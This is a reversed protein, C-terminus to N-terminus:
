EKLWGHRVVFGEFVNIGTGGVGEGGGSTVELLTVVDADLAERAADDVDGGGLGALVTVGLGVDGGNVDEGALLVFFDRGSRVGEGGGEDLLNLVQEDVDSIVAEVDEVVVVLFLDEGVGRILVEHLADLFGEVVALFDGDGDGGGHAGVLDHVDLDLLTLLYCFLLLVFFMKRKTPM